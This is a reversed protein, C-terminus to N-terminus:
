NRCPGLRPRWPDAPRSLVVSPLPPERPNCPVHRIGSACREADLENCKRAARVGRGSSRQDLAGHRVSSDDGRDLLDVCRRGVRWCPETFPSRRRDQQVPLVHPPLALGCTWAATKIAAVITSHLAHGRPCKNPRRAIACQLSTRARRRSARHMASSAIGRSAIRSLAGM